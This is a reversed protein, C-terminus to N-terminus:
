CTYFIVDQMKKKFFLNCVIALNAFTYIDFWLLFFFWVFTAFITIIHVLFASVRLLVFVKVNKAVKCSISIYANLYKVEFLRRLQPDLTRVGESDSFLLPM